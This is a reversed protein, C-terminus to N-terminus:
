ISEGKEEHNTRKVCKFCWLKKMHGVPRLRAKDRFIQQSTGCKICVMERPELLRTVRM